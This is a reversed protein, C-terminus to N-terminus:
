IRNGAARWASANRLTTEPDCTMAGLGVQYERGDPLEKVWASHEEGLAGYLKLIRVRLVKNMGGDFSASAIEAEDGIEWHTAM